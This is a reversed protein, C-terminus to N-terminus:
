AKDKGFLRVMAKDSVSGDGEKWGWAKRAAKMADVPFPQKGKPLPATKTYGLDYL